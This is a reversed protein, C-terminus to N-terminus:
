LPLCSRLTTVEGMWRAPWFKVRAGSPMDSATMWSLEEALPSTTVGVLGRDLDVLEWREGVFILGLDPKFGGHSGFRDGRLLADM